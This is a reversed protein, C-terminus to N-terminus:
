FSFSAAIIITLGDLWPQIGKWIAWFHRVYVPPSQPVFVLRKQSGAVTLLHSCAPSNFNQLNQIEDM